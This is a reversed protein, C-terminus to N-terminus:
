VICVQGWMMGLEWWRDLRYCVCRGCRMRLEWRVGRTWGIAYVGAGVDDRAGM